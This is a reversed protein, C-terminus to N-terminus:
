KSIYIFLNLLKGWQEMSYNYHLDYVEKTIAVIKM